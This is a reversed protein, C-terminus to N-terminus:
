ADRAKPPPMFGKAVWHSALLFSVLVGIGIAAVVIWV